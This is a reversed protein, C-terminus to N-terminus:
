LKEQIKGNEDHIIVSCKENEAMQKAYTIAQSQTRVISIPHPDGEFKVEWKGDSRYDVNLNRIM